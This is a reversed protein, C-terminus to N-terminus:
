LFRAKECNFVDVSRHNKTRTITGLRSPGVHIHQNEDHLFSLISLAPNTLPGVPNELGPIYAIRQLFGEDNSQCLPLIDFQLRRETSRRDKAVFNFMTKREIMALIRINTGLIEDVMSKILFSFDFGLILGQVNAAMVSRTIRQCRKSGYHLINCRIHKDVMFIVYGLQRKMGRTNAFSTDIPIVIKSSPLHLFVYNLGQVNTKKLINITKTLSKFEESTTPNNRPAM